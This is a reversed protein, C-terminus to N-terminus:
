NKNKEEGVEPKIGRKRENLITLIRAITKRINKVQASNEVAGGSQIKTRLNRLETRLEQLEEILEQDSKSRLEKLAKM